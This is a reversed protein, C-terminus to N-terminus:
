CPATQSTTAQYTFATELSWTWLFGDISHSPRLLYSVLAATLHTVGAPLRGTDLLSSTGCVEEIVM